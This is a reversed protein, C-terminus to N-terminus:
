NVNRFIVKYAVFSIPKIYPRGNCPSSRWRARPEGDRSHRPSAGTSGPQREEGDGSHVCRLLLCDPMWGDHSLAPTPVLAGGAAGVAMEMYDCIETRVVDPGGREAGLTFPGVVTAPCGSALPCTGSVVSSLDPVMAARLPAGGSCRKELSTPSAMMSGDSCAWIGGGRDEGRTLGVSWLVNILTECPRDAGENGLRACTTMRECPSSLPLGLVVARPPCSPMRPSPGAEGEPPPATSGSGLRWRLPHPLWRGLRTTAVSTCPGTAVGDRIQM